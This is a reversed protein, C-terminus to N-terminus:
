SDKTAQLDTDLPCVVHFKGGEMNAHRSINDKNPDQKLLWIRSTDSYRGSIISM